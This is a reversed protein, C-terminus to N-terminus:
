YPLNVQSIKSISFFTCLSNQKKICKKLSVRESVMLLKLTLRTIHRVAMSRATAATMIPPHNARQSEERAETVEETSDRSTM